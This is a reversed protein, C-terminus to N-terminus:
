RATVPARSGFVHLEGTGYCAVVLDARGDGDLDGAAVHNALRGACVARWPAFTGRGDGRLLQVDSGNQAGCALDVEGDGDFDAAALGWIPQPLEVTTANFMGRGDNRLVDLVGTDDHSGVLDVDGDRDFDGALVYGPRASVAVCDGASGALVGGGQGRLLAIRGDRLLPVMVDLRHDGDFDAIALADYPHRAPTRFPSGTAASFGGRGDGRLVSIAHDNANTTLVDLAGDGDLDALAIEHTHAREGSAAAFPSRAFPVLEGTGVNRLAHVDYSDHEAVVVDAAGDGDVDGVAVKRASPGIRTEGRVAFRAGGDNRVVVVKGSAPDSRSGCCTGCAVVVDVDGDRDMDALVPRGPMPGVFIRSHVPFLEQAPAAALLLFSAVLLRPM